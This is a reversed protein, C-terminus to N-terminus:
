VASAQIVHKWARVDPSAEETQTLFAECGQTVSFCMMMFCWAAAYKWGEKGSVETWRLKFDSVFVDLRSTALHLDSSRRSCFCSTEMACFHCLFPVSISRIRLRAQPCPGALFHLGPRPPLVSSHYLSHLRLQDDSSPHHYFRSSGCANSSSALRHPLVAFHSARGSAQCM